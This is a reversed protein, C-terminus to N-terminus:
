TYLMKLSEKETYGKNFAEYLLHIITKQREEKHFRIMDSISKNPNREFLSWQLYNLALFELFFFAKVGEYSRLQFDGIGLFCKLYLYDVECKWRNAYIELIQKNTLSTDTSMFYRTTIKYKRYMRSIVTKVKKNVDKLFGNISHTHYVRTGSKNKIKVICANKKFRSICKVRQSIQINSINRNKKIGCIVEGGCKRIHKILKASSYWTDFCVYVKYTKVLVPLVQNLMDKALNLKTRFKLKCKNSKNRHYNWKAVDKKRLYLRFCLTFSINNCSVRLTVTKLQNHYTDDKTEKYYGLVEISNTTNPKTIAFDDISVIIAQKTKKSQQNILAILWKLKEKELVDIELSESKLFDIITFNNKPTLMARSIASVTRGEECCIIADVVNYINEWQPKSLFMKFIMLFTVLFSNKRINKNPM